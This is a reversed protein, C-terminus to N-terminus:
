CGEVYTRGSVVSSRWVAHGRRKKNYWNPQETMNPMAIKILILGERTTTDFYAMQSFTRNSYEAFSLCNRNIGIRSTITVTNGPYSAQSHLDAKLCYHRSQITQYFYLLGIAVWNGNANSKIWLFHTLLFLFICVCVCICTFISCVLQMSKPRTFMTDDRTNIFLHILCAIFNLNFKHLLTKVKLVHTPYIGLREWTLLLVINESTETKGNWCDILNGETNLDIWGDIVLLSCSM